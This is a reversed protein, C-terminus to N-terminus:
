RDRWPKRGRSYSFQHFTLDDILGRARAARFAEILPDDSVTLDLGRVILRARRKQRRVRLRAMM